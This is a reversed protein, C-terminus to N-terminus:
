VPACSLPPTVVTRWPSLRRRFRSVASIPAVFCMDLTLLLPSSVPIQDGLWYAGGWLVPAQRLVAYYLARSARDFTPHVLDRFHDVITPESGAQRFEAALTDAVRSHGSGYSATLILVRPPRTVRRTAEGRAPHAPM